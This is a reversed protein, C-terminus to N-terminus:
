SVSWASAFDFAFEALTRPAHGLLGELENSTRAAQGFRCLGYLLVMVAAQDGAIGRRRCHRYFSVFGLPRYRLTRGAARGLEGVVEAYTLAQRGSLEYARHLHKGPNALVSAAVEAVDRTDVFATRGKGACLALEGTQQLEEGHTGSLNQFFFAPRLFTWPLNRKQVELEIKRHPVWPMGEAGQISLFVVCDLKPVGALADLFPGFQARVEALAPPRMFFVRSVGELAGAFTEPRLFDFEVWGPGIRRRASAKVVEIEPHAKELERVVDAGVTGTAGTVLIRM